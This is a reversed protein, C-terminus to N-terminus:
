KKRSVFGRLEDEIFQNPKWGKILRDLLFQDAASLAIGITTGVGGAGLADIGIGAGTFLMWRLTKSPLRDIWTKKTVAEYYAKCLDVDPKQDKLWEKFKEAQELLKLVDEFTKEGSNVAERVAKGDDFVFSQFHSLRDLNERHHNVIGEIRLRLLSSVAPNTALESSFKSAFQLNERANLLLSLMYAVTLSSHSIPIHKHYSVNAQAFDINTRIRIQGDAETANVILNTPLQYEPALVRLVERFSLAVSDSMIEARTAQLITEDYPVLDVMSIFRNALRRGRGSRGTAETFIAPAANQLTYVPSTFCVPAHKENESGSNQTHIGGLSELYGIKLSGRQLLEILVDPGCAPVLQRLVTVHGMVRVNGYFLLCEALFGLDLPEPKEGASQDRICISEFM